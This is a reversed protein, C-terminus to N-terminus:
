ITEQLAELCNREPLTYRHIGPFRAPVSIRENCFGSQSLAAKTKAAYFFVIFPAAM